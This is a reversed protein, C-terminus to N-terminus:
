RPRGTSDIASLLEAVKERPYHTTRYIPLRYGKEDRDPNLFEWVLRGDRTVEFLRGSNSEAIYINDNPLRESSGRSSSFFTYGGREQYSWVIEESIPDLELIRTKGRTDSAWNSGNDYILINGNPLM